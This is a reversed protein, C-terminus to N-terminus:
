RLRGERFTRGEKYCQTTAGIWHGVSHIDQTLSLSPQGTDALVFSKRSANPFAEFHTASAQRELRVM